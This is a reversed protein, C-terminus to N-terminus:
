RLMRSWIGISCSFYFKTKIFTHDLSVIKNRIFLYIKLIDKDTTVDHFCRRELSTMENWPHRGQSAAIRLALEDDEWCMSEMEGNAVLQGMSILGDEM